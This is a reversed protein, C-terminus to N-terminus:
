STGNSIHGKSNANYREKKEQMSVNILNSLAQIMSSSSDDYGVM